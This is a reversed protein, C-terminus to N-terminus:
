QIQKYAKIIQFFKSLEDWHSPDVTKSDEISLFLTRVFKKLAINYKPQSLTQHSDAIIWISVIEQNSLRIVNTLRRMLRQDNHIYRLLRDFDEVILLSPQSLPNIFGMELFYDFGVDIHERVEIESDGQHEFAQYRSVIKDYKHMSKISPSIVCIKTGRIFVSKVKATIMRDRGSSPKAVIIESVTM